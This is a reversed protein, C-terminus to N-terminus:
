SQEKKLPFVRVYLWADGKLDTRVACEFDTDWLKLHKRGSTKLFASANQAKKSSPFGFRCWDRPPKMDLPVKMLEALMPSYKSNLGQKPPPTVGAEFKLFLVGNESPKPKAPM